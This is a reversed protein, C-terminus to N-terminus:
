KNFGFLSEISIMIEQISKSGDVLLKNYGFKDTEALVADGFLADREMWNAFATDIDTCGNLYEGIWPRQAYKELRFERSPVMCIYRAANIGTNFMLSPLFGAGEAIVKNSGCFGAIHRVAYPYMDRYFQLEENCLIKPDRLWMDNMNISSFKKALQNGDDAMQKTFTDLYDDLKYYKLDYKKALMEAVTSKGCCTSGGIYYIQEM